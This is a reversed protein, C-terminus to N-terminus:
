GSNAIFIGVVGWCITSSLWQQCYLDWCCRLLYRQKVVTPLLSGVVGWCIASSLWQQCYLGWCRRLLYHQKVVTPLLSGLLAEVSL